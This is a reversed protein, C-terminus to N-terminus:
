KRLRGLEEALAQMEGPSFNNKRLVMEYIDRLEEFTAMGMDTYQIASANVMKIKTAIQNVMYEINEPTNQSLDM